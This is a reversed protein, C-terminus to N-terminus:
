ITNWTNQDRQVDDDLFDISYVDYMLSCRRQRLIPALPRNGDYVYFPYIYGINELVLNASPLININININMNMNMNMNININMNMNMNM